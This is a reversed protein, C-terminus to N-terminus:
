RNDLNDGARMITQDMVRQRQRVSLDSIAANFEALLEKDRKRVGACLGTFGLDFGDEKSFYLVKLQRKHQREYSLGTDYNVVTGDARFNLVENLIATQNDLPPLHKVNPIQDIVTDFRSNSQAIIRAGELEKISGAGTYESNRNVVVAYEVKRFEYPITFDIVEKREDTDVMGSFIADIEGRNLAGILDDFNVKRFEIEAGIEKAILAAIQVDYGEAYFGPHNVLPFNSESPSNEEWNYPVHDCEVGVRITIARKPPRSMINFFIALAILLFLLTYKRM